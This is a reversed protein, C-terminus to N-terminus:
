PLMRKMLLNLGGYFLAPTAKGNDFYAKLRNYRWDFYTKDPNYVQWGSEALQDFKVYLGGDIKGSLVAARAWRMVNQLESAMALKTVFATNRQDLDANKDFYIASVRYDGGSWSGKNPLDSYPIVLVQKNVKGLRENFILGGDLSPNGSVVFDKDPFVKLVLGKYFPTSFNFSIKKNAIGVEGLDGSLNEGTEILIEKAVSIKGGVAEISGGYNASANLGTKGLEVLLYIPSKASLQDQLSTVEAALLNEVHRQVYSVAALAVNVGLVAALIASFLIKTKM